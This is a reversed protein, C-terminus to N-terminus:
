SVYDIGMIKLLVVL